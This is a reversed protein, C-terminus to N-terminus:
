GGPPPPPAIQSGIDLTVHLLATCGAATGSNFYSQRVLAGCNASASDFYATRLEPPNTGVPGGSQYNRIFQLGSVVSQSAGAGNAAECKVPATGSSSQRCFANGQQGVWGADELCPGPGTAVVVGAPIPPTTTNCAPRFSTAIVVGMNPG